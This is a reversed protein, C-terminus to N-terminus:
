FEIMLNVLSLKARACDLKGAADLRVFEACYTPGDPSFGLGYFVGTSWLELSLSGKIETIGFTSMSDAPPDLHM